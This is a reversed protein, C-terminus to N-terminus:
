AAQRAPMTSDEIAIVQSSSRAPRHFLLDTLRRELLAHSFHAVFLTTALCAVFFCLARVDPYVALWATRVFARRYVSLVMPHWLYLSYSITGLYLLGGSRLIRCLLGQEVILPALVFISAVAAPVPSGEIRHMAWLATCAALSAAARHRAAIGSIQGRVGWCIVGAVFYWFTPRLWLVTTTAVAWALRAASTAAGVRRRSLWVGSAAILYFVVEYSLTWAVGQAIPLDFVGPLFLLNSLFHAIWGLADVQALWSMGLAPGLTFWLLHPALFTPYIRQARKVLFRAVSRERCLAGFIVYGSILFFLPVSVRLLDIAQALLSTNAVGDWIRYTVANAYWHYLFVALTAAGRLGQL